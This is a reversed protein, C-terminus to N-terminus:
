SWLKIISYLAWPLFLTNKWRHLSMINCDSTSPAILPVSFVMQNTSQGLIAMNGQSASGLIGHNVVAEVVTINQGTKEAESISPDLRSSVLPAEVDPIVSAKRLLDAKSNEVESEEIEEDGQIKTPKKDLSYDSETFTIAPKKNGSNSDPPPTELQATPSPSGVSLKTKKAEIKVNKDVEAQRSLEPSDASTGSSIRLTSDLSEEDHDDEPDTTKGKSREQAEQSSNQELLPTKKVQSKATDTVATEAAKQDRNTPQALSPAPNEAQAPPKPQPVPTETEAPPTPKEVSPRSKEVPPTFKEKSNPAAPTADEAPSAPKATATGQVVLTTVEDEPVFIDEDKPLPIKGKQLKFGTVGKKVFPQKSPRSDRLEAQPVTFKDCKSQEAADVSETGAKEQPSLVHFPLSYISYFQKGNIRDLEHFIVQYDGPPTCEPIVFNMHKVSSGREGQMLQPGQSITINHERNVLYIEVSLIATALQTGADTNSPKLVGDGTIELSISIKKGAPKKSDPAPGNIILLGPTFFQGGSRQCITLNVLFLFISALLLTQLGQTRAYGFPMVVNKRQLRPGRARRFRLPRM